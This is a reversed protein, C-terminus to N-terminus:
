IDPDVDPAPTFYDFIGLIEFPQYVNAAVPQGWSLGARIEVTHGNEEHEDTFRNPPLRLKVPSAGQALAVQTGDSFTLGPWQTEIRMAAPGGPQSPWEMEVYAEVLGKNLIFRAYSRGSPSAPCEGNGTLNSAFVVPFCTGPYFRYERFHGHPPADQLKVRHVQEPDGAIEIRSVNPYYRQHHVHVSYRGEKPVQFYANGVDDTTTNLGLGVVRVTAGWVPLFEDNIVLVRLLTAAPPPPVSSEVVKPEPPPASGACGAALLSFALFLAARLAM